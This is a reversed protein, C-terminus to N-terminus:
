VLGNTGVASVPRFARLVANWGDFASGAEGLSGFGPHDLDGDPPSTSFRPDRQPNQVLDDIELLKPPRNLLGQPTRVPRFASLEAAFKARRIYDGFAIISAFRQRVDRGPM